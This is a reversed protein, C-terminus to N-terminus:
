AERLFRELFDGKIAHTALIVKVAVTRALKTDIARHVEAMGGQGLLEELRYRVLTRGVYASM